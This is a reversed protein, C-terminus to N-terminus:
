SALKKALATLGGTYVGDVAQKAQDDSAGKADFRGVWDIVTGKKGAKVSITSRYKTVPLPGSVISYSYKHHADDWTLLKEVITGGGNLSLTRLTANGQKLLECKAIAPHWTAIGCFDGIAAWAADPTGAVQQHEKVDIAYAPAGIVAAFAVALIIRSRAVSREM